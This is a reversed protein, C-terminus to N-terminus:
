RNKHKQTVKNLNSICKYAEEKIIEIGHIYKELDERLENKDNKNKFFEKCYRKVIEILFAGDGCSNDIVHKKLISQGYYKGFDLMNNVIFEPTYFKGLLKSNDM